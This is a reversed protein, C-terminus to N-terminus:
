ARAELVSALPLEFYFSTGGGPRDEFGMRGEMAEVLAKSIALGLGTGGVRRTRSQGSQAFKEFIRPRFEESIGPGRDRVEFRVYDGRRSAEVEVLSGTSGFKAANSLLNALVQQLRQEDAQVLLSDQCQVQVRVGTGAFLPRNLRVAEDLLQAVSLSRQEPQFRGEELKQIDLVDDVLDKLRRGNRAALEVMQREEPGFQGSAVELLRLSGLVSTLPTRLEHSAVAVFESKLREVEKRETIDRIQGMFALPAGAEDRVVTAVLEADFHTGDARAMSLEFADDDGSESSAANFRARGMALFDARDAYLVSTERGALEDQSYGFLREFMPNVLMIRRDMASAVVIAVPADRFLSEFLHRQHEISADQENERILQGVSAAVLGIFEVDYDAPPQTADPDFLALVGRIRSGVRVPAAIFAGHHGVGSRKRGHRLVAAMLATDLAPETGWAPLLAEPDMTLCLRAMGTKTRAAGLYAAVTDEIGGFEQMMSLQQLAKLRSAQAQARRAQEALSAQIGEDETVDAFVGFVSVAEGEADVEVRGSSRVIRETGDTRILRLKFQFSGREEIAENLLGEVVHRDEPHFFGIAEALEPEYDAPTGHIRRVEPSWYVESRVLDVKWTGVRAMEEAMELQRVYQEYAQTRAKERTVDVVTAFIMDRPGPVAAWRFTKTGDATLYRNEFQLTPRGNVLRNLEAVTAERDRPDVMDIFPRDVLESAPCGMLEEFAPNVYDFTGDTRAIVQPVNSDHFFTAFDDPGVTSM